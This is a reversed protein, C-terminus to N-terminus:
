IYVTECQEYNQQTFMSGGVYVSLFRGWVSEDQLLKFVTFKLRLAM